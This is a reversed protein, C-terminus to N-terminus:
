AQYCFQRAYVGFHHYGTIVISGLLHHYGTASGPDYYRQIASVPCLASFLLASLVSYPWTTYLFTDLFIANCQISLKPYSAINLLLHLFRLATPM